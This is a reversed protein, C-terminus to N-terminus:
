KQSLLKVVYCNADSNYVTSYLTCHMYVTIFFVTKFNYYEKDSTSIQALYNQICNYKVFLEFNSFNPLCLSKKMKSLTFPPHFICHLFALLYKLCNECLKEPLLNTKSVLTVRSLFM